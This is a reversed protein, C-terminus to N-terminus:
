NSMFIYFANCKSMQDKYDEAIGPNIRSLFRIYDPSHFEMLEEATAM